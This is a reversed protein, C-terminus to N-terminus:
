INDVIEFPQGANGTQLALHLLSNIPEIGVTLTVLDDGLPKLDDLLYMVAPHQKLLQLCAKRGAPLVIEGLGADIVCLM